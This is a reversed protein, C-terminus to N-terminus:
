REKDTTISFSNSNTILYKYRPATELFNNEYSNYNDLDGAFINTCLLLVLSSFLLIKKKLIFDGKNNLIIKMRKSYRLPRRVKIKYKSDKYSGNIIQEVASIHQASFKFNVNKVEDEIKDFEEDIYKNIAEDLIYEITDNIIKKHEM